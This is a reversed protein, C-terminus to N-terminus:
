LLLDAGGKVLLNRYLADPALDRGGPWTLAGSCLSVRKFFEEDQLASFVASGHVLRSLNIIGEFNDIFRLRIRYEPLLWAKYIRWASTLVVEPPKVMATIHTRIREPGDELEKGSPDVIDQLLAMALPPLSGELVRFANHDVIAEHTGYLVHVHPPAHDVFFVQIVVGHTSFITPM